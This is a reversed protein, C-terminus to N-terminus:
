SNKVPRATVPTTTLTAKSFSIYNGGKKTFSNSASLNLGEPTTNGNSNNNGTSIIETFPKAGLDSNIKINGPKQEYKKTAPSLSSLGFRSSNSPISSQNQSIDDFNSRNNFIPKSTISKSDRKDNMIRFDPVDSKSLIQIPTDDIDDILNISKSSEPQNLINGYSSNGILVKSYLSKQKYVSFDSGSKIGISLSNLSRLASNKLTASQGNTESNSKKNKSSKAKYAVDYLDYYFDHISAIRAAPMTTDTVKIIKPKKSGGYGSGLQGSFFNSTASPLISSASALNNKESSNFFNSILKEALAYDTKMAKLLYVPIGKSAKSKAQRLNFSTHDVIIKNSNFVVTFQQEQDPNPISTKNNSSKVNDAIFSSGTYINLKLLGPVRRGKWTELTAISNTVLRQPPTIKQKLANAATRNALTLEAKSDMLTKLHSPQLRLDINLKIAPISKKSHKKKSKPKTDVIEDAVLEWEATKMIDARPDKTLLKSNKLISKLTNPTGSFGSDYISTSNYDKSIGFDKELTSISCLETRKPTYYVEKEIKSLPKFWHLNDLNDISSYENKNHQGKIQVPPPYLSEFWSDMADDDDYDDDNDDENEGEQDSDQYANLTIPFNSKKKKQIELPIGNNTLFHDAKTSDHINKLHNSNLLRSHERSLYTSRLFNYEFPRNTIRAWEYSQDSSEFVEKRIPETSTLFSAVKAAIYKSNSATLSSIYKYISERQIEAVQELEQQYAQQRQLMATKQTSSNLYADSDLSQLDFYSEKNIPSSSCLYKLPPQPNIKTEPTKNLNSIEASSKYQSVPSNTTSRTEPTIQDPGPSNNIATLRSLDTNVRTSTKLYCRDPKNPNKESSNSTLLSNSNLTTQTNINSNDNSDSLSSGSSVLFMKKSDTAPLNSSGPKEHITTNESVHIMPPDESIPSNKLSKVDTSTHNNIAKSNLLDLRASNSNNQSLLRSSQTSKFNDASSAATNSATTQWSSFGSNQDNTESASSEASSGVMFKSSTQIDEDLNNTSKPVPPKQSSILGQKPDTPAIQNSASDYVLSKEAWGVHKRNKKESDKKKKSSAARSKM